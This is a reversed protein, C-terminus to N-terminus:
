RALAPLVAPWSHEARPLAPAGFMASGVHRGDQLYTTLSHRQTRVYHQEGCVWVGAVLMPHRMASLVHQRGALEGGSTRAYPLLSTGDFTPWQSSPMGWLELLTPLVDVLEVLQKRRVGRVGDPIRMILPVHV